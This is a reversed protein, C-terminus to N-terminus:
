HQQVGVTEIAVLIELFNDKELGIGIELEEMVKMEISIETSEEVTIDKLSKIHEQMVELIEKGIIKNM